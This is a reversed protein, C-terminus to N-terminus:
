LFSQPSCLPSFSLSHGLAPALPGGVRSRKTLRLFMVYKFHYCQHGFNVASVEGFHECMNFFIFLYFDLTQLFFSFLM